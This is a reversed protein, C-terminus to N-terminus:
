KGFIYYFTIRYVLDTGKIGTVNSNMKTYALGASNEGTASLDSNYTDMWINPMIHIKSMPMYDLGFTIFQEKTTPEYQSTLATYSVYNPNNTVEKLDHSPNYNDYRAFFNLKDKYIAGRVYVSIDTAKTTLYHVNHNVDVAAVDGMLTNQFAEVGITLKKTNWAVFAKTMNRDHHFNNPTPLAYTTGSSTTTKTEAQGDVMPSWNLKTYDQYLDIILHKNFFKAYVDGYFWKFSNTAPKDGNGNAVMLDYGFNGHKPDFWGQLAVGFDYSSTRRIDAITREVSRYGWVEETTQTNRADEALPAGMAFTPTPSQGIVLDTGKWLNKWRLDALKVYPTFKGNSLVDGTGQGFNGNFDDEAALLLDATFKKSIYYTYGLYIRRFQFENTNVPVKTYQNSGGRGAEDAGGKYAYDGFAYGWLKGHPKFETTTDAQQAKVSTGAIVLLASLCALRFYTTIKKM